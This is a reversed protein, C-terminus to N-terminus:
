VTLLGHTSLPLKPYTFAISGITGFMSSVKPFLFNTFNAFLKPSIHTVKIEEIYRLRKRSLADAGSAKM